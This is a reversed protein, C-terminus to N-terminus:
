RGPPEAGILLHHLDREPAASQLRNWIDGRFWRQVPNLKLLDRMQATEKAPPAVEPEQRGEPHARGAGSEPTATHPSARRKVKAGGPTPQALTLGDPQLGLLGRSPSPWAQGVGCSAARGPRNRRPQTGNARHIEVAIPGEVVLPSQRLHRADRIRVM